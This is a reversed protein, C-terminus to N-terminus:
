TTSVIRVGVDVLSKKNLLTVEIKARSKRKDVKKIWSEKGKLPGSIVEVKKNVIHVESYEIIGQEDTLNKIWLMEDDPISTFYGPSKDKKREGCDVLYYLDPISKLRYYLNSSMTAQVFVYGPFLVRISNRAVGQSYEPVIRKPIFCSLPVFKFFKRIYKEVADEKGSEVFLAYWSM